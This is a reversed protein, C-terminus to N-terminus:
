FFDGFSREAETQSTGLTGMWRKGLGWDWAVDYNTASYDLYDFDSYYTRM